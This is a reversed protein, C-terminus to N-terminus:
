KRAFALGVGAGILLSGTIRNRLRARAQLLSRLRSALLAWAGDLLVAVVLFTGALLLLQHTAGGGSATIFQPLFAAYFLLTKPNTLSVAFGRAFISALSRPEAQIGALDTATARWTRVGLWVLYAVGLWRLWDFLNALMGLLASAGLVVLALQLVMASATGAVTMLGYRAGHAVSNAVILAVNPGPIAILVVCAAIFALYLDLPM